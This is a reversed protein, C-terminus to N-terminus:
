HEHEISSSKKASCTKEDVLPMLADRESSRGEGSSQHIFLIIFFAVLVVGVFVTLLLVAM